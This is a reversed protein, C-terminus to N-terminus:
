STSNSMSDDGFPGRAVFRTRLYSEARRDDTAITPMREKLSPRDWDSVWRKLRQSGGYLGPLRPLGRRRTRGHGAIPSQASCPREESMFTTQVGPEDDRDRGVCARGGRHRPTSSSGPPPPCSNRCRPRVQSVLPGTLSMLGYRATDTWMAVVFSSLRANTSAHPSRHDPATTTWPIMARM